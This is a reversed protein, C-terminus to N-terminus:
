IKQQINSSVLYIVFSFTMILGVVVYPHVSWPFLLLNVLVGVCAVSYHLGAHYRIPSSWAMNVSSIRRRVLGQNFAGLIVVWFVLLWEFFVFVRYIVQYVATWIAMHANNMKEFLMGDKEPPLMLTRTLDAMWNCCASFVENTRDRVRSAAEDGMTSSVLQQERVVQDVIVSESFVITYLVFCVTCILWMLIHARFM